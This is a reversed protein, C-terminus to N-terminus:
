VFGHHLRDAIVVLVNEVANAAASALGCVHVVFLHFTVHLVLWLFLFLFALDFDAVKLCSLIM